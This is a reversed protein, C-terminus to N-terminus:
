SAARRRRALTVVLWVLLALIALPILYGLGIVVAAIVGVFGAVAHDWANGISPTHVPTQTTVSPVGAERLQVRITSESTRNEIVNLEGQIQEIGQQTQDLAGQVRLTESISVARLYLKQLARRRGELIKLRANLDIFQNTVDQASVSVGRVTGIKRLATMAADFRKAPVHLVLLGSRTAISSSFVFGGQKDAISTVDDVATGLGERPVTVSMSGTRIIKSLDVASSGQGIASTVDNAGRLDIPGRAPLPSASAQPEPQNAFVRRAAGEGAVAKGVDHFTGGGAVSPAASNSSSTLKTLGGIVGAVLLFAAAAAVVALWRRGPRRGRAPPAPELHREREAARLLDQELRDLYAINTEM